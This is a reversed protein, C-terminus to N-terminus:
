RILSNYDFVNLVWCLSLGKAHVQYVSGNNHTLQVFEPEQKQSWSFSPPKSQCPLQKGGWTPHTVSIDGSRM